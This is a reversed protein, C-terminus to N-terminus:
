GNNGVSGVGAAPVPPKNPDTQGSKMGNNFQNGGPTGGGPMKQRGFLSPSVVMGAFNETTKGTERGIQTTQSTSAGMFHWLAEPIIYMVSMCSNIISISLFMFFVLLVFISLLGTFSNMQMNAIMVPYENM